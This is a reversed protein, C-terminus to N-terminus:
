VTKLYPLSPRKSLLHPMGLDTKPYDNQKEELIKLFEELKYTRQIGSERERVTITDTAVEREGIFVTYYVWEIGADRMKKALTEDRDDIDVRYGREAIARYIKEAHDLYSKSVPIIRIQIPSAWFPLSPTLGEREKLAATDFLMYIYRELSGIIATHIIIPHREVGNEDVYKIGFRKANGVDIQFTAIERPKGASDIINYEINIVWYYIDDPVVTILAPRGDRRVLERLYDIEEELFRKTVNIIAVYDRGLKKAEEFIKDRVLLGIRKAEELDRTLIHLDPMFFRRLRFGLILEGRQEYRYSDAVEFMGMPLDKYSIVWDKLIAFQQHCAAYRMVLSSGEMSVEYLRDGFLDAHEKVAPVNLDFMNTGKVRFVPIGLSNVVKWSYESVVELITAAHPEYRMHGHDSYKEWEFGFKEMYEAGRPRTKELERKFVEKEVLAKLYPDKYDYQYPDYLQGDLDLILFSKQIIQRRREEPKITRSLEALPHGYNKLNFEKYWGFPARFVKVGSKELEEGLRRLISIADKPSALESSLHAYPYLLVASSGVTDHHRKIESAAREIISPDKYDDKEVTIFAVIINSFKNEMPVDEERIELAPERAKYSFEEAHILLIRL